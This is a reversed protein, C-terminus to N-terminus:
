RNWFQWGKKKTEPQNPTPSNPTPNGFDLLPISFGTDEKPRLLPDGNELDPIYFEPPAEGVADREEQTLKKRRVMADMKRGMVKFWRDTIKGREYYIHRKKPSPVISFLWATEAVNLEDPRKGFYHVAADHIGYIGPGYEIINFYVELIRAKPVKVVHEMLFVLFAERIKRALLKEHNLFANKVLQMSITSGGRRFRKAEINDEVSEKFADFLFGPHTFFGGDETTTVTLPVWKSIHHLPVFTYPGLPSRDSWQIEDGDNWPKKAVRAEYSSSTWYQPSDLVTRPLWSKRHDPISPWEADRFDADITEINVNCNDVLYKASIPKAPPIKITRTWEYEDGDDDELTAEIKLKYGKMLNNPDVEHPISVIEFDGLVPNSVWEMDGANYPPLELDLKWTLTGAFEAGAIPGQIAVPVAEFLDQFPTTPLDVKLDVRAPLRSPLAGTGYIAPLVSAKVSGIQAAGKTFVLSGRHIPDDAAPRNFDKFLGNKLLRAEPMKGDPDYTASFGYSATFDQVPEEALKDWYYVLDEVSANGELVVAKGKGPKVDLKGRMTGGRLNKAVSPGMIQGLWSLDLADVEVDADLKKSRYGIAVLGKVSGRDKDDALAEFGGELRLTGEGFDHLAKLSGKELRLTKAPRVVPLSRDDVIDITADRVEIQHPIRALLQELRGPEDDIDAKPKPQPPAEEPEDTPLAGEDEDIEPEKAAAKRRGEEVDRAFAKARAVVDRARPARIAHDLDGLQSGGQADFQLDMRPADVTLNAFVIEKPNLAWRAVSLAVRKTTAFPKKASRFGLHADTIMVLGDESLEVGDFGARLFPLPALGSVEVSRDFKVNLTKPTLDEEMLVAAVDVESPLTWESGDISTVSVKTSVSIDGDHEIELMPVAFDAVPFPTAGDEAEFKVMVDTVDVEPLTGGFYRLMGGESPEESESEPEPPDPEESRKRDKMIRVLDFDGGAEKTLVVDVDESWVGTIVRDGVLLKPLSIKGGARKVTVLTRGTTPDTIKLGTIEVGNLGVMEISTTEIDLNLKEEVREFRSTVQSRAVNPAVVFVGVAVLVVALIFLVVTGALLKKGLSM